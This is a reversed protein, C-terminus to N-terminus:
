GFVKYEIIWMMIGVLSLILVLLSVFPYRVSVAGRNLVLFNFSLLISPISALWFLEPHRFATVVLGLPVLLLCSSPLVENVLLVLHAPPAYSSAPRVLIWLTRALIFGVFIISPIVISPRVTTILICITMVPLYWRIDHMLLLSVRRVYTRCHSESRHGFVRIEVEGMFAHAQFYLLVFLLFSMYSNLGFVSKDAFFIVLSASIASPVFLRLRPVLVQLAAFDWFMRIATIGFATLSLYFATASRLSPFDIPQFPRLNLVLFSISVIILASASAVLLLAWLSRRGLTSYM